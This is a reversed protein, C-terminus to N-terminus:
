AAKAFQARVQAEHALLAQVSPRQEMRQQHSACHGLDSLDLKFMGARRFCWYFYADACGFREFFWDRGALMDNAIVLQERLGQGGLERVNDASGELTCFREPRASQTIRPHIGSACWAMVSIARVHDMPDQPILGAEPFTRAIWLQIAVNETLVQGDVILTPVKGKPNLRLYDPDLQQQRSMDINRTEFTAGAETLLVYPALSCAFPSYALTIHM